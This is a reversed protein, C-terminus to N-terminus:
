CIRNAKCSFVWFCPIMIQNSDRTRQNKNRFNSDLRGTQKELYNAIDLNIVGLQETSSKAPPSNKNKKEKM